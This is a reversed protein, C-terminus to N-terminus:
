VIVNRWAYSRQRVADAQVRAHIRNQKMSLRKRKSFGSASIYYLFAYPSGHLCFPADANMLANSRMDFGACKNRLLGRHTNSIAKRSWQSSRDKVASYLRRSRQGRMPQISRWM